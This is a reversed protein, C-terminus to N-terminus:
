TRHSAPAPRGAETALADRRLRKREYMARDAQELLVAPDTGGDVLAVGVSAGVTVTGVDLRIPAEVAAALRGSLEDVGGGDLRACVVFEDGAYRAVLDTDRVCRRLRDAIVELVRDGCAHGLSDNVAKFRDLDIFVLAGLGNRDAAVASLRDTLYRRNPLGTLPDYMALASLAGARAFQDRLVLGLRAACAAGGVVGLVASGVPVAEGTLASVLMAAPLAVVAPAVLWVRELEAAAERDAGATTAAVIAAALAAYGLAYLVVSVPAAGGALFSVDGVWVVAFMVLLWGYAPQRGSTLFLHGMVIGIAVDVLMYGFAVAPDATLTGVRAVVVWLVTAVGCVAATMELGLVTVVRPSSRRQWALGCLGALFLGYGAAFVWETNETSPVPDDGGVARAVFAAGTITGGGLVVLGWGGHWRHRIVAWWAVGLAGVVVVWSGGRVVRTVASREPGM